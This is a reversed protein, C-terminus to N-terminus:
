VFVLVHVSRKFFASQFPNFGSYFSVTTAQLCFFKGNLNCIYDPLNEALTGM